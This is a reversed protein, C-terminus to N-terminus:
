HLSQELKHLQVCLRRSFLSKRVQSYASHAESKAEAICDNTEEELILDIKHSIQELCEPSVHELAAANVRKKLQNLWYAVIEQRFSKLRLLCSVQSQSRLGVRRAIESMGLGKCHFLELARLYIEDRRSVHHQYRNMYAHMVFVIAEDLTEIFHERYRQIFNDQVLDNEYGESPIAEYENLDDLSSTPPQGSRNAIRYERVQDALETLETFIVSVLQSRSLNHKIELLQKPTPEQCRSMRGSRSRQLMRDRRYVDHYAQLLAQKQALESASLRPLRALQGMTTDNLLAWDSIRYLGRELCFGNIDSNGLTMHSSWTSLASQQPNYKELIKLTLPTYHPELSGDDDLVLSWLEDATFDHRQGFENALRFCAGVIQHSICCRLSLGALLSFEEKAQWLQCLWTQLTRDSEAPAGLEDLVRDQLWDHVSSITTAQQTGSATLMAMQWYQPSFCM